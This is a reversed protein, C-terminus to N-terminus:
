GEDWWERLKRENEGEVSRVWHRGKGDMFRSRCIRVDLNGTGRQRGGM